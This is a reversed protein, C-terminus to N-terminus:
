MKYLVYCGKGPRDSSDWSAQVVSCQEYSIRIFIYRAQFAKLIGGRFPDYRGLTNTYVSTSVTGVYYTADVTTDQYSIVILCQFLVVAVAALLM